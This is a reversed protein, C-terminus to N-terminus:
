NGAAALRPWVDPRDPGRRAPRQEQHTGTSLGRGTVDHARSAAAAHAAITEHYAIPVRGVVWSCAAAAMCLCLRGRSAAVNCVNANAYIQAYLSVREDIHANPDLDWEESTMRQLGTTVEAVSGV